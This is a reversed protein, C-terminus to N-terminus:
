EFLARLSCIALQRYREYPYKNRVREYYPDRRDWAADKGNGYHGQYRILLTCATLPLWLSVQHTPYIMLAGEEDPFPTGQLRNQMNETTISPVRQHLYLSTDNERM